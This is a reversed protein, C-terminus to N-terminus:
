YGYGTCAYMMDMFARQQDADGTHTADTDFYMHVGEHGILKRVDIPDNWDVPAGPATNIFILGGGAAKRAWEGRVIPNPPTGGLIGGTSLRGNLETAIRQCAPWHQSIERIAMQIAARKDASLFGVNTWGYASATQAVNLYPGGYGWYPQPGVIPTNDPTGPNDPFCGGPLSTCPMGGPWQIPGGPQRRVVVLVGDIECPHYINGACGPPLQDFSPSPIAPFLPSERQGCGALLVGALVTFFCIVGRPSPNM